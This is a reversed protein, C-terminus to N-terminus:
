NIVAIDFLQLCNQHCKIPNWWILNYKINFFVIPSVSIDNMYFKFSYGRWHSNIISMTNYVLTHILKYLYWQHHFLMYVSISMNSTNYKISYNYQISNTIYGRPVLTIKQDHVHLIKKILEQERSQSDDPQLAFLQIMNNITPKVVQNFWILSYLISMRNTM